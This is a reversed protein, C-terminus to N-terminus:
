CIRFMPTKIESKNNQQRVEQETIWCINIISTCRARVCCFRLHSKLQRKFVVLNRQLIPFRKRCSRILTYGLFIKVRM